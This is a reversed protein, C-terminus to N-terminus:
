ANNEIEKQRKICDDCIDKSDDSEDPWIYGVSNDKRTYEGTPRGKSIMGCSDCRVGHKGFASM